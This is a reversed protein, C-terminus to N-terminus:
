ISIFISLIIKKGSTQGGFSIVGQQKQQGNLSMNMDMSKIDMIKTTLNFNLKLEIKFLYLLFLNQWFSPKKFNPGIVQNRKLQFKPAGFLTGKIIFKKKQDLSM